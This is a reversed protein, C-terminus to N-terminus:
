CITAVAGCRYDVKVPEGSAKIIQSKMIVGSPPPQEGIVELKQGAYSDFRDAYIASVYRTYSETLQHRQAETLSAWISGVSLRTMAPIDFSRRIVPVLRAFRGSQGLAQGSKMTTLLTDYLAQVIEGDSSPNANVSYSIMSLGLGAAFAAAKRLSMPTVSAKITPIFLTTM